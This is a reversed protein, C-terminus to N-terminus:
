ALGRDSTMVCGDAGARRILITHSPGGSPHSISPRIRRVERSSGPTVVLGSRMTFDGFGEGPRRDEAYAVFVSYPSEAQFMRLPWDM